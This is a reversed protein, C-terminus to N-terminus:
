NEGRGLGPYVETKVANKASPIECLDIRKIKGNGVQFLIVYENKNQSIIACYRKKVVLDRISALQVFVRMDDAGNKITKIKNKLFRIYKIKGKIPELVYQSENVADLALYHTLYSADLRNWAKAYAIVADKETEVFQAKEAEKLIPYLKSQHFPRWSHECSTCHRTNSDDNVVCGGCAIKGRKQSELMASSPLGYRIPIVKISNCNPCHTQNNDM